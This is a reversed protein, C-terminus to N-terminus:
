ITEYSSTEKNFKVNLEAAKKNLLEKAKLLSSGVHKLSPIKIM